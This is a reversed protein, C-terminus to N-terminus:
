YKNSTTGDLVVKDQFSLVILQYMRSRNNMKSVDTVLSGRLAPFYEVLCFMLVTLLSSLSTTGQVSFFLIDACASNM